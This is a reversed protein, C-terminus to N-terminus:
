ADLQIHLKGGEGPAIDPPPILVPYPNFKPAVCTHGCNSRLQKWRDSLGLAARGQCSDRHHGLSSPRVERLLPCMQTTLKCFNLLARVVAAIWGRDRRLNCGYTGFLTSSPASLCSLM